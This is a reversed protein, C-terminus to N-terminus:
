VSETTMSAPNITDIGDILTLFFVDNCTLTEPLIHPLDRPSM